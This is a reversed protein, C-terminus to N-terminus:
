AQAQRRPEDSNRGSSRLAMARKLSSLVRERLDIPGVDGPTADVHPMTAIRQMYAEPLSYTLGAKNHIAVRLSTANAKTILNAIEPLSVLGSCTAVSSSVAGGTNMPPTDAPEDSSSAPSAFNVM